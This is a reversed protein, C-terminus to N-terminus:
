KLLMMKKVQEFRNNHDTTSLADIRLFYTGTSVNANWHVSYWGAAQEGNVLEAVVQGLINYIRLNVRSTMPLNYQITTTPNFPNPYNQSLDFKEPTGNM